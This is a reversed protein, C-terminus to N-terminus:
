KISRREFEAWAIEYDKERDCKAFPAIYIITREIPGSPMTDDMITRHIEGSQMDKIDEWGLPKEITEKGEIVIKYPTAKKDAKRPVTFKNSRPSFIIRGNIDYFTENENNQMIPFQIRYIIKLEELTLALERAVLVDLEVLAQRREYDSRLAVHRQWNSTLSDFFKHNLRQEERKTWTDIKFNEKFNEEWLESYYISLSSLALVRVIIEKNLTILPFSEWMYHLNIKGTSKIFFDGLVSFTIAASSLLYQNDQFAISRIGNIHAVEKPLIAGVLTRETNSDLM